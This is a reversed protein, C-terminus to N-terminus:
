LSLVQRHDSGVAHRLPDLGAEGALMDFYEAVALVELRDHHRAFEGALTAHLAVLEDVLREALEHALLDM